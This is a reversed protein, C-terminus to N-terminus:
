EFLSGYDLLYLVVGFVFVMGLPLIVKKIMSGVDCGFYNSTVVVCLHAPSILFGTFGSLSALMINNPILEPQYLLGALLTFGLGVYASIMGTLFGILFCVSFIIVGEPLHYETALKPISEMGGSLELISQFSLVGYIFMLMKISLGQRIASAIIKKSPRSTIVLCLNAILLSLSLEVKFAGYLTVAVLV